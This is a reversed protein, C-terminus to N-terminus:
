KVDGGGIGRLCEFAAQFATQLGRGAKKNHFAPKWEDMEFVDSVSFLAAAEIKRYACAAFVSAAEMEVTYIGEERYRRIQSATERFSADTTWSPGAHFEGKRAESLADKLRRTLNESPLAYRQPPLYHYSTGEDRLAKTCIVTDGVGLSEQLAGAFGLSVVRGIGSAALIELFSVTAPGGFGFGCCLTVAHGNERYLYLPVDGVQKLKGRKGLWGLIQKQYCIIADRPLSALFRRMFSRRHLFSVLPTVLSEEQYDKHFLPSVTSESM